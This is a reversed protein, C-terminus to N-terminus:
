EDAEEKAADIAACLQELNIGHDTLDAAEEDGLWCKHIGCLYPYQRWLDKEKLLDISLGPGIVGKSM